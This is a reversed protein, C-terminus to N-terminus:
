NFVFMLFLWLIPLGEVWLSSYYKNQEIKSLRVFLATAMAIILLPFIIKSSTENKLFELGLFTLLFLVGLKKTKKVGLKQPITSLNIADFKLDRIEFPLMLVLVYLFRQIALIVVDTNIPYDTNIIPVFVTVGAWVFAILYVKIGSVSRLNSKQKSLVPIAYLITLLAFIFLFLYTRIELKLAYYCMLIFCIFSLVQIWKLWNTLRRHHFKAIGFYKVFNYGTITAFFLFLLVIKSTPIEVTLFTIWTLSVVGLAVHVSSNIYFNLLQKLFQM